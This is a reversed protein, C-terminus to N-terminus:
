PEGIGEKDLATAINNWAATAAAIPAKAKGKPSRRSWRM